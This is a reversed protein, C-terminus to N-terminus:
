PTSLRPSIRLQAEKESLPGVPQNGAVLYVGPKLERFSNPSAPAVFRAAVKPALANSLKVRDPGVTLVYTDDNLEAVANFIGAGLQRTEPLIGSFHEAADQADRRFEEYFHGYRTLVRILKGISSEGQCDLVDPSDTAALPQTRSSISPSWVGRLATRFLSRARRLVQLGADLATPDGTAQYKSMAADCYALYDGLFRETGPAFHPKRSIESQSRFDELDSFLQVAKELRESDNWLRASSIMAAITAGNVSAMPLTTMKPKVGSKSKRLATLTPNFKDSEIASWDSVQIVMSRNTQTDLGLTETAFKAQTPTVKGTNWFQRFDKAYFSSRPDRDFGNEQGIRATPVHGAETTIKYLWDFTAKGILDINPEPKISSAMALTLMIEANLESPKDFEIKSYTSDVAVGFFGGDLWDVLGSSLSRKSATTFDQFDGLLLFSRWAVARSTPSGGILGGRAQDLSDKLLAYYRDYGSLQVSGQYLLDRENQQAVPLESPTERISNFQGFSAVLEALFGMAEANSARPFFLRYLVGNPMVFAMQITSVGGNEVRSLPAYASLLHPSEDLDIRVPVFHRDIYNQVDPDRLVTEDFKRGSRNWVTGMYLLVPRDMRRGRALADALNEEWPISQSTGQSIFDAASVGRIARENPILPRLRALGLGLIALM